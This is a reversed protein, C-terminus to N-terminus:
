VGGRCNLRLVDLPSASRGVVSQNKVSPDWVVKIKSMHLNEAM